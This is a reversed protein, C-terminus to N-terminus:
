RTALTRSPLLYGTRTINRGPRSGKPKVEYCPRSCCPSSSPTTSSWFGLAWLLFCTGIGTLVGQDPSVWYHLYTVLIVLLLSLLVAPYMWLFDRPVYAGADTYPYGVCSSMRCNPGSRPPTTVAMALSVVALASTLLAAWSGLRSATGPKGTETM